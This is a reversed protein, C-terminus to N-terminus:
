GEDEIRRELDAAFKPRCAPCVIVPVTTEGSQYVAAVDEPVRAAGGCYSCAGTSVDLLEMIKENGTWEVNVDDNM